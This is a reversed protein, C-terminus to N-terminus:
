KDTHCCKQMSWIGDALSYQLTHLPLVLIESSKHTGIAIVLVRNVDASAGRPGDAYTM